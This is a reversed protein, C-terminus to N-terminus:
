QPRRGHKSRKGKLTAYYALIEQSPPSYKKLQKLAAAIEILRPTLKTSRTSDVLAIAEAFLDIERRKKAPLVGGKLIDLLRLLEWRAATKWCAMPPRKKFHAVHISGGLRERLWEVLPLDDARLNLAANIIVPLGAKEYAYVGLSGEGFFLGRIEAQEEQTPTVLSDARRREIEVLRAEYVHPVIWLLLQDSYSLGNKAAEQQVFEWLHEPIDQM